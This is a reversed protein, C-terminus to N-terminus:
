TIADTSLGPAASVYLYVLINASVIVFYAATSICGRQWCAERQELEVVHPCIAFFYICSTILMAAIAYTATLVSKICGKFGANYAILAGPLYLDFEGWLVLSLFSAVGCVRTYVDTCIAKSKGKQVAEFQDGSSAGDVIVIVTFIAALSFTQSVGAWLSWFAISGPGDSNASFNDLDLSLSLSCFLLGSLSYAFLIWLLCDKTRVKSTSKKKRKKKRKERMSRALWMYALAYFVYSSFLCVWFIHLAVNATNNLCGIDVTDTSNLPLQFIFYHDPQYPVECHSGDIM